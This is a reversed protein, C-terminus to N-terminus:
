ADFAECFDDTISTNVVCDTTGPVPACELNYDDWYCCGM